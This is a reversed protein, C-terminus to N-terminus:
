SIDMLPFSIVIQSGKDDNPEFTNVSAKYKNAIQRIYYMSMNFTIKNNFHSFSTEDDSITLWIKSKFEQLTVHFNRGDGNSIACTIAEYIIKYINSQLEYDTKHDPLESEYALNVHHKQHLYEAFYPIAVELSKGFLSDPLDHKSDQEIVELNQTLVSKADEIKNEDLLKLTLNINRNASLDRKGKTKLENALLIHINRISQARLYLLWAVLSIVCILVVAYIIRIKSTWYWPYAVSINAFARNNSWQGLSNTAMVEINYEGSALGTLTLQSSSLQNWSGNNVRYRFQKAQGPRYDLSVLDFTVVESASNINVPQQVISQQGSITSKGIFVNANFFDSKTLPIEIVGGYHNYFVREDVIQLEGSFSYRETNPLLNFQHSKPDIIYLGMAAGVWIEDQVKSSYSFEIGKAIISLLTGERDYILIGDGLTAAFVKNDSFALSIYKGPGQSPLNKITKNNRNYISIGHTTALWIDGDEFAYIDIIENAILGDEKSVHDVIRNNAIDYTYLGDYNTGIYLIGNLYSMKLLLKNNNPFNIRELTNQKASLRWVGDFTAIYLDENINLVDMIRLGKDSFLKNINEPLVTSDKRFNQLGKGYSGIILEGKFIALDNANSAVSFVIPYNKISSEVLTEVGLNSALWLVNSSDHFAAKIRGKRTNGFGHEIEALDNARYKKIEGQDSITFFSTSNHTKTLGHIASTIPISKIENNEDISYLANETTAILYNNVAVISRIREQLVSEFNNEKLVFLGGTTRMYLNQATKAFFSTGKTDFIAKTEGTNIKHQFVQLKSYTYFHGKFAITHYHSKSETKIKVPEVRGTKPDFIWSGNTESSAIFKNGYHELEHTWTFPVQWNADNTSFTISNISDYRTIGQHGVLWIYGDDDQTIDNIKALYQISPTPVAHVLGSLLCCLPILM